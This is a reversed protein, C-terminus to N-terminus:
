SNENINEPTYIAVSKPTEYFEVSSVVFNTFDKMREQVIQFFMKSLHEATPVFPVLVLGMDIEDVPCANRYYYFGNYSFSETASKFHADLLPDNIDLIMKHDLDKDLQEKFWALHSFDTVMGSKTTKGQLSIKITGRHGHLHRCKNARGCGLIPDVDQTWVRHGFDFDFTKSIIYPM